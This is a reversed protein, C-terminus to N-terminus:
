AIAELKAVEARVGQALAEAFRSLRLNRRDDEHRILYFARSLHVDGTLIRTVGPTAPLSFDHVIGVGGGQRIMNVQVSVSNSALPVRTMGLEALYDLERDFIMDPIYGVLRHGQLDAVTRIAPRAALYSDAAALHLQYDAIKQVVLRGATPASVGIAMDAERRSLNFVRPLAVIQIDLGPNDAVLRACVQPLLYNACGDPAGIRIQGALQDSPVVVDATAQRMAQEAAEARSLLQVGAETLAYGSPSKVFLVAQMTKELRAMRRGLTAPDLRLLKGAGSLSQERAVALFLRLDDWNGMM